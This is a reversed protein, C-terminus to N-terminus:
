SGLFIGPPLLSSVSGSGKRRRGERGPTKLYGLVIPTITVSAFKKLLQMQIFLLSRSYLM